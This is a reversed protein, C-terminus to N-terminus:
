PQVASYNRGPDTRAHADRWLLLANALFLGVQIAFFSVANLLGLDKIAFPGNLALCGLNALILLGQGGAVGLAFNRALRPRKRGVVSALLAPIGILAIQIGWMVAFPVGAEQLPSVAQQSFEPRTRSLIEGFLFAFNIPFCCPFFTLVAIVAHL